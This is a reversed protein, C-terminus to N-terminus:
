SVTQAAPVPTSAERLFVRVAITGVILDYAVHVAIVLDLSQTQFVVLHFLLAFIATALVGRWGQFMHGFSFAVVCLLISLSPSGTIRALITYAVGRYAWEETIGALFSIPIWYRMESENEPLSRRARQKRDSPLRAWAFRLRITIVVLWGAAVAWSWPSIGSAGFLHLGSKRAADWTIVLLFFQLAIMARYRRRKPSLPKGSKLHFYSYAGTLPVVVMAWLLFPMAGFDHPTM